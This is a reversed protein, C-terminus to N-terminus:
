NVYTVNSFQNYTSCNNDHSRLHALYELSTNQWHWMAVFILLHWWQHSCGVMDFISSKLREPIMSIYFLFACGATGYLVLLRPLWKVIHDSNLGGHLAIWHFAPAFGLAAIILYTLNTFNFLPHFLPVENVDRSLPLYAAILSIGFLFAFYYRQLE